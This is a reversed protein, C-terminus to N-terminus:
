STRTHRRVIEAVKQMQSKPTYPAKRQRPAHDPHVPKPLGHLAATVHAIRHRIDIEPIAAAVMCARCVNFANGHFCKTEVDDVGPVAVGEVMVPPPDAAVPAGDATTLVPPLSDEKKAM